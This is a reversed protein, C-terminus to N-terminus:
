GQQNGCFTCQTTAGQQLEVWRLLQDKSFGDLPQPKYADALNTVGVTGMAGFPLRLQLGFQPLVNTVMGLTAAGKQLRYDGPLSSSFALGLKPLM